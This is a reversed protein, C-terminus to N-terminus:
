DIALLIRGEPGKLFFTLTPIRRHCRSPLGGLAPPAPTLDGCPNVTRATFFFALDPYSIQEVELILVCFVIIIGFCCEFM